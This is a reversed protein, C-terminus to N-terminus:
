NRPMYNLYTLKLKEMEHQAEEMLYDICFNRISTANMQKCGCVQFLLLLLPDSSLVM